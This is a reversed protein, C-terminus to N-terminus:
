FSKVVEGKKLHIGGAEEEPPKPTPSLDRGRLSLTQMYTDKPYGIGVIILEPLIQPIQLLEVIQRVM